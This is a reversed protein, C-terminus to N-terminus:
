TPMADYIKKDIKDEIEEYDMNFKQQKILYFVYIELLKDNLKEREKKDLKFSKIIEEDMVKDFSKNTSIDKFDVFDYDSKSILEITEEESLNLIYILQIINKKLPAKIKGCRLDSLMKSMTKMESTEPIELIKVKKKKLNKYYERLRERYKDTLELLHKAFPSPQNGFAPQMDEKMVNIIKEILNEQGKKGCHHIPYIPTSKRGKKIFINKHSSVLKIFDDFNKINAYPEGKLTEYVCEFTRMGMTIINEPELINYLEKFLEKDKKMWERHMGVSSERRYGLCFNTFFLDENREHLDYGFSKFLNILNKDTESDNFNEDLYNVEEGNNMKKIREIFKKDEGFISGFDQAVFLYKIKPTKEAYGFGQWYTFLNIEKCINEGEIYPAYLDATNNQPNDFDYHPYQTQMKEVLNKYDKSKDINM